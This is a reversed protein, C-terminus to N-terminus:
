GNPLLNWGGPIETQMLRVLVKRRQTSHLPTATGRPPRRKCKHIHTDTHIHTHVYTHTYTHIYTHIHTRIYTNIYTQIYTHIHTHTCIHMYTYSHIHVCCLQICPHVRLWVCVGKCRLSISAVARDAVHTYIYTHARTYTCAHMCAHTHTHTYTHTIFYSSYNM